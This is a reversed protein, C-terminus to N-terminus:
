SLCQQMDMVQQGGKIGGSLERWHLTGIDIVSPGAPRPKDTTRISNYSDPSSTNTRLRINRYPVVIPVLSTESPSGRKSRHLLGSIHMNLRAGQM